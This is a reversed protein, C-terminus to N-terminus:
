SRMQDSLLVLQSVTLAPAAQQKWFGGERAGGKIAAGRRSGRTVFWPIPDLLRGFSTLQQTRQVSSDMPQAHDIVEKLCLSFPTM